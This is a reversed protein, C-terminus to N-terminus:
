DYERRDRARQEEEWDAQEMDYLYNDREDEVRQITRVRRFKNATIGIQRATMGIFEPNGPGTYWGSGKAEIRQSVCISNIFFLTQIGHGADIDRVYLKNQAHLQKEYELVQKADM